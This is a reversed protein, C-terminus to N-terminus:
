RVVPMGQEEWQLIGGKLDVVKFGEAQLQTAAANSRRGSRCYIYYTYARDLAKTETAFTEKDLWDINIAGELHSETFESPQRVDLLVATSDTQAAISFQKPELTTIQQKNTCGTFLSLVAFFSLYIKKM